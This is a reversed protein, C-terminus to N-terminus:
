PILKHSILINKNPKNVKALSGSLLMLEGDLKKINLDLRLRAPHHKNEIHRAMLEHLIDNLSRDCPQYGIHKSSRKEILLNDTKKPNKGRGKTM